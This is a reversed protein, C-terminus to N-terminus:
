RKALAVCTSAIGERWPTMRLGPVARRIASADFCRYGNHPIPGTRPSSSISVRKTFQSATFEAIERFSAVDGSVANLVGASRRLVLQCLLAAVDEIYIHDRLEEGDGFLVIAKGSSALRRFRNPGYGDHPDDLGYALTPRLIALPGAFESRLLVERALHMAGHPSGPEACSSESIPEASDKYVADSSVYLLHGIDAGHIATCVAEAMRVNEVLMEPNRCPARASVFILTDGPRLRNRLAAAAGPSVLDIEARGLPLTEVGAAKLHRVSAAGVFGAAGLVVARTPTEPATLLHALM